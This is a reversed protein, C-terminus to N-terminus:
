CWDVTLTIACSLNQFDNISLVLNKLFVIALLLRDIPINTLLINYRFGIILLFCTTLFVCIFEVVFTVCSSIIEFFHLVFSLIIIVVITSKIIITIIIIIISIIITINFNFIIIIIIIIIITTITTIIFTIKNITCSRIPINRVYFMQHFVTHKKFCLVKCTPSSIVNINQVAVDSCLSQM